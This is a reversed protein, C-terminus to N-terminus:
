PVKIFGSDRNSNTDMLTGGKMFDAPYKGTQKLIRLFIRAFPFIFLESFKSINNRCLHMYLKLFSIKKISRKAQRCSCISM